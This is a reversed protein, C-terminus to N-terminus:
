SGAVYSKYVSILAAKQSDTLNPDARIAREVDLAAVAEEADEDLLGAHALLTESSVNLADAIGRLVRVSPQHLGREVQSLYANSVNALESLQRLSLDALTRQARIFEGLSKRQTEWPDAAM